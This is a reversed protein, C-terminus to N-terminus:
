KGLQCNELMYIIAKNNLIKALDIPTRKRMDKAKVLAPGSGQDLMFEIINYHALSVALHLATEMNENVEFLIYPNLLVTRKVTELQGSAM